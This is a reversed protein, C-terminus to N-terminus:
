IFYHMNPQSSVISAVSSFEFDNKFKISISLSNM